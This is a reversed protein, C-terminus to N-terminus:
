QAKQVKGRLDRWAILAVVLAVMYGWGGYRLSFIEGIGWWTFFWFPISLLKKSRYSIDLPITSLSALSLQLFAPVEIKKMWAMVTVAILLVLTLRNFSEARREREKLFYIGSMVTAVGGVAVIWGKVGALYGLIPALVALALGLM